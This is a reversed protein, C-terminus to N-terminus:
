VQDDAALRCLCYNYPYFSTKLYLYAITVACVEINLIGFPVSYTGKAPLAAILEIRFDLYFYPWGTRMLTNIADSQVVKNVIKPDLTVM